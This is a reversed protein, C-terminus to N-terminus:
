SVHCYIIGVYFGLRTLSSHFPPRHDTTWMQSSISSHAKHQPTALHIILVNLTAASKMFCHFLSTLYMGPWMIEHKQNTVQPWCTNKGVTCTVLGSVHQNDRTLTCQGPKKTGTLFSTTILSILRASPSCLVFLAHLLTFLPQKIQM